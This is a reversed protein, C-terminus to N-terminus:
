YNKKTPILNKFLYLVSRKIRDKGIQHLAIDFGKKKNNDIYLIFFSNYDPFALISISYLRNKVTEWITKATEIEKEILDLFLL